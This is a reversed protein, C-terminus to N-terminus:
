SSTGDLLPPVALSPTQGGVRPIQGWPHTLHATPSDSQLTVEGSDQLGRSGKQCRDARRGGGLVFPSVLLVCGLLEEGSATLDAVSRLDFCFM